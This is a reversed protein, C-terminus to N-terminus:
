PQHVFMEQHGVGGEAAVQVVRFGDGIKGRADAIQFAEVHQEAQCGGIDHADPRAAPGRPLRPQHFFEIQFGAGQHRPFFGTHGGFDRWRVIVCGAVGADVDCGVVCLGGGDDDDVRGVAGAEEGGEATRQRRLACADHAGVDVREGFGFGAFDGDVAKDNLVGGAKGETLFPTLFIQAVGDAGCEFAREVDIGFDGLVARRRRLFVEDEVDWWFYFDIVGGAAAVGDDFDFGAVAVAKEVVDGAGETILAEVDAGGLDVGM